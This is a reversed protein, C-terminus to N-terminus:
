GRDAEVAVAVLLKRDPAAASEGFTVTSVKGDGDKITLVDGPKVGRSVAANILTLLDTPEAPRALAPDGCRKCVEDGFDHGWRQCWAQYCNLDDGAYGFLGGSM